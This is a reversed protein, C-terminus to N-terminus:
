NYASASNHFYKCTTVVTVMYNSIVNNENVLAAKFTRDHVPTINRITLYGEDSIDYSGNLFGPGTRSFSVSDQIEMGVIIKANTDPSDYWYVAHFVRPFSCDLTGNSGIEFYQSPKCKFDGTLLM